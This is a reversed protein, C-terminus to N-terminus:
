KYKENELGQSFLCGEVTMVATICPITPFDDIEISIDLKKELAEIDKKVNTPLTNLNYITIKLCHKEGIRKLEKKAEAQRREVEKIVQKNTMKIEGFNTNVELDILM